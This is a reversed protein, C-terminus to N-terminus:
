KTDGAVADDGFAEEIEHQAVKEVDEIVPVAVPELDPNRVLRAYGYIQMLLRLFLLSLAVPIVLKSPWTPLRIDMTSDGISWSRDFHYLSGWILLAVTFAIVIVGIMEFIYLTRGRLKGLVIEMRIHGGVRQCYAVGAFAFIAMAQETIDIFGPIPTNFFLRGLVQAVALFMLSLISFAAIMNFGNEVHGLWGDFRIYTTPRDSESGGTQPSTNM